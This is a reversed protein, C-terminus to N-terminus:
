PAQQQGVVLLQDSAREGRQERQVGVELDNGRDPTTVLDDSSSSLM